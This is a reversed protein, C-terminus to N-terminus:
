NNIPKVFSQNQFISGIIKVVYPHNPHANKVIQVIYINNKLFALCEQLNDIMLGNNKLVYKLREFTEKTLEKSNNSVIEYVNFQIFWSLFGFFYSKVVIDWHLNKKPSIGFTPLIFYYKHEGKGKHWNYFKASNKMSKNFSKKM